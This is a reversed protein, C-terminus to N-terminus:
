ADTRGRQVWGYLLLCMPVGGLVTGVPVNALSLAGAVIGLVRAWDKRWFLAVGGVLAPLAQVLFVVAVLAGMGGFIAGGILPEVDQERVALMGLLSGFGLAFGGALAAFALHSLGLALLMGASLWDLTRQNM